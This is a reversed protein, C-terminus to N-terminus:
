KGDEKKPKPAVRDLWRVVLAEIGKPGLWGFAGALAFTQWPTLEFWEAVGLASLGMVVAILLEFALWAAVIRRDGARLQYGVWIMRTGTAGALGMGAAGISDKLTELFGHDM